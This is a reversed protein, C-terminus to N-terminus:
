EKKADGIRLLFFVSETGGVQLDQLDLFVLQVLLEQRVEIALMELNGPSVLPDQVVRLVLHEQHDLLDKARLLIRLIQEYTPHIFSSM